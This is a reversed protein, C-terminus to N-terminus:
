PALEVHVTITGSDIEYDVGLWAAPKLAIYNAALCGDAEDLELEKSTTLTTAKVGQTITVTGTADAACVQVRVIPYGATRVATASGEGTVATLLTVERGAAMPLALLLGAVCALAISLLRRM